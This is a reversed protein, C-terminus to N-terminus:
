AVKQLRRALVLFGQLDFLFHEEIQVQTNQTDSM